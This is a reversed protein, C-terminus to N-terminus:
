YAILKNLTKQTTFSMKIVTYTDKNQAPHLFMNRM